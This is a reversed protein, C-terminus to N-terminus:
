RYFWLLFCCVLSEEQNVCPRLKLLSVDLDVFRASVLVWVVETLDTLHSVREATVEKAM